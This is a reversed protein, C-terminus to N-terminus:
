LFSFAVGTSNQGSHIDFSIVRFQVRPETTLICTGLIKVIVCSGEHIYKVLIYLFQEVECLYKSKM